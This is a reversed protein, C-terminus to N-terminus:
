DTKNLYVMFGSGALIIAFIVPVYISLFGIYFIFLSLLLVQWSAGLIAKDFGNKMYNIILIVFFVILIATFLWGNTAEVGFRSLDYIGHIQTANTINVSMYVM